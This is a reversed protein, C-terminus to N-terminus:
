LKTRADDTEKRSIYRAVYGDSVERRRPFGREYRVASFYLPAFIMACVCASALMFYLLSDPGEYQFLYGGLWSYVLAGCASSFFTMCTLMATVEVYLNLWSLLTPHLPAMCAAFLCSFIALATGSAQGYAVLSATAAMIVSIEVLILVIQSVRTAALTVLLRGATFTAWFLSELLTADAPSLKLRGTVGISFLFKGYANQMGTPLMFILFSFMLIAYGLRKDGGLWSSPNFADKASMQSKKQPAEQRIPAFWYLLVFIAAMLLTFAAIISYPYEIAAPTMNYSTTNSMNAPLSTNYVDDVSNDDDPIVGLFPRAILPAILAGIGFATHLAHLPVAAKVGWMRLMFANGGSSFRCWRVRNAQITLPSLFIFGLTALRNATMHTIPQLVYDMREYCVHIRM